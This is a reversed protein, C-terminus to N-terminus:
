SEDVPRSRLASPMPQAPGGLALRAPIRSVLLDIAARTKLPLARAQPWVAQLVYGYPEPEEFVRVLTGAALADAM